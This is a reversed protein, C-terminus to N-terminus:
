IASKAQFVATLRTRPPRCAASLGEEGLMAEVDVERNSKILEILSPQAFGRLRRRVPALARFM